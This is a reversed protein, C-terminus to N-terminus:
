TLCAVLSARCEETELNFVFWMVGKVAERGERGERTGEAGGARKYAQVGDYVSSCVNM